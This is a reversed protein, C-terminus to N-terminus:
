ACDIFDVGSLQNAAFLCDELIATNRLKETSLGIKKTKESKKRVDEKKSQSTLFDSFNKGGISSKPGIETDAM